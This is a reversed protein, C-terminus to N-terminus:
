LDIVTARHVLRYKEDLVSANVLITDRDKDRGFKHRILGEAAGEHIHGFVHLLPQVTRLRDTLFPCGVSGVGAVQDLFGQPPGHTVLIDVDKPVANDPQRDHMTGTSTNVSWVDRDAPYMFAWDFFEPSYPSGFVKFSRGRISITNVEHELFLIGQNVAEKSTWMDRVEKVNRMNVEAGLEDMEEEHKRIFGPDLGLDHNGAVVIKIEYPLDKLEQLVKTLQALSGSRTLDGAHILVDGPPLDTYWGGTSHTDSVCVFRVKDEPKTSLYSDQPRQSRPTARTAVSRSSPKTTMFMKTDKHIPIAM